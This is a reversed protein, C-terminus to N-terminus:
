RLLLTANANPVSIKALAPVPVLLIRCGHSLWPGTSERVVRSGMGPVLVPVLSWRWVAESVVKPVWFDTQISWDDAFFKLPMKIGVLRPFPFAYRRKQMPLPMMLNM